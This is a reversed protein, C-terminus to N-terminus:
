TVKRGKALDSRYNGELKVWFSEPSGFVFELREALLGDLPYSGAELDYLEPVTLGLYGALDHVSIRREQRLEEILYGPPATWDANEM